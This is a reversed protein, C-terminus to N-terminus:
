DTLWYQGALENWALAGSEISEVISSLFSEFSAAVHETGDEYLAIIQGTTGQAGPDFDIALQCAGGDDAFTTWGDSFICGRILGSDDADDLTESDEGINSKNRLNEEV